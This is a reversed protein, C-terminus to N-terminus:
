SFSQKLIFITQTIQPWKLAIWKTTLLKRQVSLVSERGWSKFELNLVERPRNLSVKEVWELSDPLIKETLLYYCELRAPHSWCPKALFLEVDTDEKTQLLFEGRDGSNQKVIRGGAGGRGTSLRSITTAPEWEEVKIWEPHLLACLFGLSELCSCPLFQFADAEWPTSPLCLEVCPALPSFRGNVKRLRCATILHSM